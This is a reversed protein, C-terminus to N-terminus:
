FNSYADFQQCVSVPSRNPNSRRKKIFSITNENISNQIEAIDDLTFQKSRSYLKWLKKQAFTINADYTLGAVSSCTQLFSTRTSVPIDTTNFGEMASVISALAITSSNEKAFFYNFASLEAFFCSRQFVAHKVSPSLRPFLQCLHSIFAVTTPPHMRWSLTHLIIAEMETVHEEIFEGRCLSVIVALPLEKTGYIKCAIYLSTVAALKLTAKDCVCIDLFRDLYSFSVAVVERNLHFHDIVRYSWECMKERYSEDIKKQKSDNNLRKLYDCKCKYNTEEQRRMVQLKESISAEEMSPIEISSYHYSNMTLNLM